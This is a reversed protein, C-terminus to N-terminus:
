REQTFYILIVEEQILSSYSQERVLFPRREPFFLANVENVDNQIDDSEIQSFDPNLAVELLDVSSVYYKAFLSAEDNSSTSNNFKIKRIVM